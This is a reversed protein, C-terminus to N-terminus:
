QFDEKSYQELRIQEGTSAVYNLDDIKECAGFRDKISSLIQRKSGTEVHKGDIRLFYIM